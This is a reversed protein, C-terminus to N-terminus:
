VPAQIILSVGFWFAHIQGVGWLVGLVLFARVVRFARLCLGWGALLVRLVM